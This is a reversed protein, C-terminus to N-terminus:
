RKGGDVRGTALIELAKMRAEPKSLPGGDVGLYERLAARIIQTMPVRLQAARAILAKYTEKDIQAHAAPM